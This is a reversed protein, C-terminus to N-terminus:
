SNKKSRLKMMVGSSLLAVGFFAVSYIFTINGTGAYSLVEGGGVGGCNYEINKALYPDNTLGWAQGNSIFIWGDKEYSKIEDASLHPIKWWNTQIGRGYTDCFCQMYGIDSTTYVKDEGEFRGQDGPIGHVGSSYSAKLSGVPNVCSPYGPAGAALVNTALAIFVLSAIVVAPIIKRYTFMYIKM